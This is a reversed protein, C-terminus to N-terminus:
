TFRAAGSDYTILGYVPLKADRGKPLNAKKLEPVNIGVFKSECLGPKAYTPVGWNHLYKAVTLHM